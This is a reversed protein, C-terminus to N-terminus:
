VAGGASREEATLSASAVLGEGPVYYVLDGASIESGSRACVGSYTARMAKPPVRDVSARPASPSLATATETHLKVTAASVKATEAEVLKSALVSLTAAQANRCWPALDCGGCAAASPSYQGFCPTNAAVMGRLYNDRVWAPADDAPVVELRRATKVRKPKAAPPAEEAEALREAVEEVTETPATEAEPVPAPTPVEAEALREAVAEVEAVTTVPAAVPAPKAAKAPKAAGAGKPTYGSAPLSTLGYAYDGGAKTYAWVGRKSQTVCGRQKLDFLANNMPITVTKDDTATKTPDFGVLPLAKTWLSAYPVEVGVPALDMLAKIIPLRFASMPLKNTTM